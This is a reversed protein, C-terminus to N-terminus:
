NVAGCIGSLLGNFDFGSNLGMRVIVLDKSPIIAVLQGEYGNCSFMTHPADPYMAGGGNTWFQAGYKGGSDPVITKTYEVWGEPLLREGNWVGDILYLTGFRAWDRPTAYCYSSGIYTGSEDCEMTTNDMNLKSFIREYPFRLYDDHNQFQNRIYGSIINTTGSSYEWHEGVKAELGLQRAVKANDESDYLMKTAPSIKSYIESWELGSSMQMLNNLTIEKRDDNAWEPFLNKNDLSLVSDKVLMGVWANMISKTMSWGLIETDADYGDAYQEYILSDKHLVVVARTRKSTMGGNDDFANNVIKQVQDHDIGTTKLIEVKDGYPYNIDPLDTILNKSEPYKVKYNDKGQILVCGLKGRYEATKAKMGFVSSTVKKNERDITTSSFALPGMALDENQISEQTREAIFTCSCMKKAAYSSIITLKPYNIYLAAAIVITLLLLTSLLIKKLMTIQTSLLLKTFTSRKL